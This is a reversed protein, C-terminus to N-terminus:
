FPLQEVWGDRSFLEVTQIYYKRQGADNFKWETKKLDRCLIENGNTEDIEFLSLPINTTHSFMYEDRSYVAYYVEGTIPEYYLKMNDLGRTHRPMQQITQQTELSLSM